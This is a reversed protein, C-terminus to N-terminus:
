YALLALLLLLFGGSASLIWTCRQIDRPGPKPTGDGTWASLYPSLPGGLSLHASEAMVRVPATESEPMTVSQALCRLLPLPRAFPFCLSALAILLVGLREPLYHLLCQLRYATHAFQARQPHWAENLLSLTRSALAGPLGLLIYWFLAPLLVCAFRVSATEIAARALGHADLVAHNRWVSGALLQRARAMDQIRLSHAIRRALLPARFAFLPVLLLLEAGPLRSLLMQLAAGCLLALLLFALAAIRGRQRRVTESRRERNLKRETKRAVYLPLRAIPRFPPLALLLAGLALALFALLARNHLLTASDM